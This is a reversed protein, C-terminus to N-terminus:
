WSCISGLPPPVGVQLQGAEPATKRDDLPGGQQPVGGADTQHPPEGGLNELFLTPHGPFVSFFFTRSTQVDSRDRGLIYPM